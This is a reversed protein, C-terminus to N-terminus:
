CLFRQSVYFKFPKTIIWFEKSNHKNNIRCKLWKDKIYKNLSQNRLKTSLNRHMVYAERNKMTKIKLCIRKFRDRVNNQKRLTSNM